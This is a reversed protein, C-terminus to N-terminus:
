WILRIVLGAIAVAELLVVSSAIVLMRRTVRRRELDQERLHQDYASIDDVFKARHAEAERRISDALATTRGEIFSGLLSEAYIEVCAKRRELTGLDRTQNEMDTILKAARQRAVERMKDRDEGKQLVDDSLM